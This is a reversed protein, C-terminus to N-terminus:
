DVVFHEFTSSLCSFSRQFYLQFDACRWDEAPDRALPGFLPGKALLLRSLILISIAGM